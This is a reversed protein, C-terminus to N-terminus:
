FFPGFSSFTLVLLPPLHMILLPSCTLPPADWHPITNSSGRYVHTPLTPESLTFPEPPLVTATHFISDREPSALPTVRINQSSPSIFPPPSLHSKQPVPLSGTTLRIVYILESFSTATVPEDSLAWAPDLPASHFTIDSFRCHHLTQPPSATIDPSTSISAACHMTPLEGRRQQQQRRWWRRRGLLIRAPGPRAPITPTPLGGGSRSLAPRGAGCQAEGAGGRGRPIRRGTGSGEGGCGCGCRVGLLHPPAPGAPRTPRPGKQPEDPRGGPEGGPSPAWGAATKTAATLLQSAPRCQRPRLRLGPADGQARM